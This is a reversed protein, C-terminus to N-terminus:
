GVKELFIVPLRVWELYRVDVNRCLKSMTMHDVWVRDVFSYLLEGTTTNVIVRGTKMMPM